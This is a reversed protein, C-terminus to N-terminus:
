GALLVAAELRTPVEELVGFIADSEEKFLVLPIFLALFGPSVFLVEPVVPVEPEAVVPVVPEELVADDVVSLADASLAIAAVSEDALLVVPIFLALLGEVEFEPVQFLEVEALLPVEALPENLALPVVPV